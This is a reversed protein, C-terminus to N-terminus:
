QRLREAAEQHAAIQSQEDFDCLKGSEVLVEGAVLLTHVRPASASFLMAALPDSSAGALELTELDWLALDALAGVEIRGMGSRGLVRAGGECAIRWVEGASLWFDRPRLRSLLLAQRAEALLHNGDNSASGDVALSVPVGADLMERIPAIGSGLRMNSSPCHSMGTGSDAMRQIEASDLHIAHAFWTDSGTWGLKEMLGYPRLGHTKLCFEEEDRTEALHTHLRCGSERALAATQRMAEESVSFPSCPALDVRIMAGESPDHYRSLLRRSDELIMEENQVLDDPPLGGASRGLSMSGRTAHFRLGLDRAVEIQRDILDPAASEPFVYHHDSSLTCGSLMLEALATRTSVSIMEEDLGRWIEYHFKLWDFLEADQATPLNRTLTQYFHHHTNVLGPTILKGRADIIRDAPIEQPTDFVEAIRGQEILLAGGRIQRDEGDLTAILEPNQILTKM